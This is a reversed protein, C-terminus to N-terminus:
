TKRRLTMLGFRGDELGFYVLGLCGLMLFGENM